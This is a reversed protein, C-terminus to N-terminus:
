LRHMRHIIGCVYSMWGKRAIIAPGWYVIALHHRRRRPREVRSHWRVRAHHVVGSGIELEALRGLLKRACIRAYVLWYDSGVLIIDSGKAWRWWGKAPSTHGKSLCAPIRTDRRGPICLIIEVLPEIRMVLLWQLMHMM